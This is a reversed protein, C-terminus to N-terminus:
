KKAPPTARSEVVIRVRDPDERVRRIDIVAQRISMSVGNSLVITVPEHLAVHSSANKARVLDVRGLLEARQLDPIFDGEGPKPGKFSGFIPVLISTITVGEPLELEMNQAQAGRLPLMVLGLGLVCLAKGCSSLSM